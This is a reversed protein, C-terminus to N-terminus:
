HVVRGDFWLRVWLHVIVERVDSDLERHVLFRQLKDHLDKPPTNIRKCLFQIVGENKTGWGRERDLFGHM